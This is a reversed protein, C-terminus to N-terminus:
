VTEQTVGDRRLSSNDPARHVASYQNINGRCSGPKCLVVSHQVTSCGGSCCLLLHLQPSLASYKTQHLEVAQAPVASQVSVITTTTTTTNTTIITSTTTTTTTSTQYDAQMVQQEARMQEPQRQWCCTCLVRSLLLALCCNTFLLFQVCSRYQQLLLVSCQLSYFMLCASQLCFPSKADHMIVSYHLKPKNM